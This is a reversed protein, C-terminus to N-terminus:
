STCTVKCNIFLVVRPRALYEEESDDSIDMVDQQSWLVHLKTNVVHQEGQVLTIEGEEKGSILEEKGSTFGEKGISEVLTLKEKKGSNEAMTKNQIARSMEMARRMEAEELM